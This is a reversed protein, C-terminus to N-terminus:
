HLPQDNDLNELDNIGFIKLIKAINKPAKFPLSEPLFVSKLEGDPGLIFGYDEDSIETDYVDDYNIEQQTAKSM